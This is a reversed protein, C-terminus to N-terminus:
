GQTRVERRLIPDLHELTRDTSGQNRQILGVAREGLGVRRGSDTLLKRLNADLDALDTVQCAADAGRLLDVDKRFNSTHPGFIVAKGMAAAEVM